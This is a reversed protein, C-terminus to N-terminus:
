PELEELRRRALARLETRAFLGWAAAALLLMPLLLLYAHALWFRLELLMDLRGRGHAAGLEFLARQEGRVILLDNRLQESDAFGALAAPQPLHAPDTASVVVWSHSGDWPAPLAFAAGLPGGRLALEARTLEANSFHGTALRTWLGTDAPYQAQGGAATLKLPLADAYRTLFPHRDGVAVTLVDRGVLLKADVPGLHVLLGTAPHGTVTALQAVLGFMTALEPASPEAPLLLSTGRLDGQSTFPFGDYLFLGLDPLLAYRQAAGLRLRSDPDIAVFAHPDDEVECSAGSPLVDQDAREAYSVQLLLENYGRLLARPVSLKVRGHESSPLSGVSTGNLRVHVRAPGSKASIAQDYGLELEVEERPWVFLDPPVRFPLRLSGSHGGALRLPQPEPLRGLVVDSTSVQRPVEGAALPQLTIPTPFSVSAGSLGRGDRLLGSVARSLLSADAGHVVLLQRGPARPNPQLSLSASYLDSPAAIGLGHLSASGELVVVADTEPLEGVYADFILRGRGQLAMWSAITAAAQLQSETTPSPLVLAVHQEREFDADFFPLPLQSLEAPLPLPASVLRLEGSRIARFAGPAVRCGIPPAAPAPSGEPKSAASDAEPTAPVPAAPAIVARPESRMRLGLENTAALLTPDFAIKHTAPGKGLSLAEITEILEGNLLVELQEFSSMASVPDLELTLEASMFVHDARSKFTATQLARDSDALRERTLGLEALSLVVPQEGSLTGTQAAALLQARGTETDSAADEAADVPPEPAAQAAPGAALWVTAAMLQLKLRTKM